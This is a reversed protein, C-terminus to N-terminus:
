GFVHSDDGEASEVRGAHSQALSSTWQYQQSRSIQYSGFISSASFSERCILSDTSVSPTVAGWPLVIGHSIKESKASWQTIM